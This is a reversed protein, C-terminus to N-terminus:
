SRTRRWAASTMRRRVVLACIAADLLCSLLMSGCVLYFRLDGEFFLVFSVCGLFTAPQILASIGEWVMKEYARFIGWYFPLFSFFVAALGLIYVAILTQIDSAFLHGISTFSLFFFVSLLIKLVYFNGLYLSAEEKHKALERALIASLGAEAFCTIFVSYELAFAYRGYEEPGLTRVVLIFAALQIPISLLHGLIAFSANRVVKFMFLGKNAQPDPLSSLYEQGDAPLRPPLARFSSGDRILHYQLSFLASLVRLRPNEGTRVGLIRQFRGLLEDQKPRLGNLAAEGMWYIQRKKWDRIYKAPFLDKYKRAGHARHVRQLVIQITGYGRGDVHFLESAIQAV